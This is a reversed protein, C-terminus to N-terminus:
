RVRSEQAETEREIRQVRELFSESLHPRGGDDARTIRRRNFKQECRELVEDPPVLGELDHADYLIHIKQLSAIFDSGYGHAVAYADAEREATDTVAQLWAFAKDRQQECQAKEADDSARFVSKYAQQYADQAEIRQKAREPAHLHGFEHLVAARIEDDTLFDDASEPIIISQNFAISGFGGLGQRKNIAIVDDTYGLPVVFYIAPSLGHAEALEEVLRVVRAHAPNAVDPVVWEQAELQRAVHRESAARENAYDDM